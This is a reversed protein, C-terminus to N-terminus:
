TLECQTFEAPAWFPRYINPGPTRAPRHSINKGLKLEAADPPRAISSSTPANSASHTARRGRQGSARGSGRGTRHHLRQEALLPGAAPRRYNHAGRDHWQRGPFRLAGYRSRATHSERDSVAVAAITTLRFHRKSAGGLKTDLQGTVSLVSDRLTEMELRQQLRSIASLKNEPDADVSPGTSRGYAESLLIERHLKKLSWGNAIFRAALEDLLEPHTPREGM